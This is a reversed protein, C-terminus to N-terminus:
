NNNKHQIEALFYLTKPNKKKLDLKKFLARSTFTKKSFYEFKVLWEKKFFCNFQYPTNRPHCDQYIKSRLKICDQFVGFFYTLNWNNELLNQSNLQSTGNRLLHGLCNWTKEQQSWKAPPMEDFTKTNNKNTQRFNYIM